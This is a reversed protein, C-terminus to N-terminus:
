RLLVWVCPAAILLVCGLIIEQEIVSELKAATLTPNAKTGQAAIDARAIVGYLRVPHYRPYDPLPKHSYFVQAANHQLTQFAWFNYSALLLGVM